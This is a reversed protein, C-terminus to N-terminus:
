QMEKEVIQALVWLRLESNSDIDLKDIFDQIIYVMENAQNEYAPSLTVVREQEDANPKTTGIRIPKTGTSEAYKRKEYYLVEFHRFQRSLQSLNIEFQVMDTDLWSTPAKNVIFTAIAELWSILDLGSDCIRLLFPTLQTGRTIEELLKAINTLEIRLKEGKSELSFNSAMQQEISDLLSPYAQKLEDLTNQLIKFFQDAKTDSGSEASFPPYRMVKPLDYFLLTDPERADLVADRLKIAKESLNQTTLTYKPLRFVFLMLPTAVALLNPTDLTQDSVELIENLTDLYKTLVDTRLDTMRFRKLEFRDPVKLLREFVPMSLDPIFSGKEYLAVETRYCLMAACLLIPLPGSRVGFPPKMFRKYLKEIPQRKSECKIFFKEIERWIPYMRNKDRKQPPHFKWEGSSNRHHIGTNMLLSQYISMEPPYKEIGLNEKEGNELMAQILVRRAATVTGSIRRRNILENKIIPTKSYIHECVKSLIENREQLSRISELEGKYYWSCANDNNNDFIEKLKRSIDMEAEVLRISLERRAVDDNQLEPNNDQIWRLRAAEFIAEQLFGISNPIAVLVSKQSVKVAKKHFQDTEHKNIPLAYLILGDADDPTETLNADFNEFNTYRVNFYRLTGTEFLHRRAVLPRTPMYRSLNTDLAVKRDIHTEAEHLKAEIDIDSGGWLVYTDNYLRHVIISRNKLVALTEAFETNFGETGDDLAYRLLQDSAKLNPIPESVIGLLGITKILNVAMDSPDSLKMIASEIQAWKKSNSSTYLRNGLAINLYDYLNPLSFLPLRNGDYHQKSLFDQLGFPEGSSLFAFLSRENQAFQRFLPGILLAVTPHLPLCGVLLQVFLSEELQQPKLGLETIADYNVKYNNDTTKEIAAGVLRLVQEIPESFPVDEFRGQIKAWEERQTKAAHQAYMEFSQHLVTLLLLPTEESREAFEALSQLVFMDEQTPYQTAYELFKGLEDIVLLLGSGDHIRIQQTALNFLETIESAHPLTGKAAASLLTRIKPIPTNSSSFGNFSTLGQELGRLLALSLPAREGSILVRCFGSSTSEGNGNIETLRQFLPDDGQQLLDLAQKTTSSDSSGLLIAAYLAFASKGSGYPGTLSLARTANGNELASIVRDLTERASVTLVYGDLVGENSYFDRELHASRRFRGNINFLESLRKNM